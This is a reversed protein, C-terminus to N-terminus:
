RTRAPIGSFCKTTNVLLAVLDDDNIVPSFSTCTNDIDRIVVIGFDNPSLSSSNIATFLNSGENSFCSSNYKLIVMKKSDSLTVYSKSLDVAGAGALPRVIIALQDIKSEVVYGVVQFVEIGEAISVLTEKGTDMAKRQINSMTQILISAAIGAILIVAIFIILSGIGVSARTSRFEM